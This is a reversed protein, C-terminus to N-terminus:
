KAYVRSFKREEALIFINASMLTTIAASALEKAAPDGCSRRREKHCM